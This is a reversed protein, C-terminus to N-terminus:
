IDTDYDSHIFIYFYRILLSNIFLGSTMMRRPQIIMNANCIDTKLLLITHAHITIIALDRLLDTLM